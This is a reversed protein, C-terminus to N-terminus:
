AVRKLIEKKIEKSEPFKLLTHLEYDLAYLELREELKPFDFVEPYAEHFWERVKGYDEQCVLAKDSESAYTGPDITIRCIMDLMYDVSLWETREFDLMACIEDRENLMFNDFHPDYYTLAMRSAELAEARVYVYRQLLEVEGISFLKKGKAVRIRNEIRDLEMKAWKRKTDINFMDAYEAYPTQNIIRLYGAIREVVSRRAKSSLAGWRDLLTKGSIKKYVIFSRPIFRKSFDFLVIPAVPIKKHFLNVFYVEKRLYRDDREPSSFKIVYRDSVTYLDNTLGKAIKAIDGDSPLGSASLILRIQDENLPSAM